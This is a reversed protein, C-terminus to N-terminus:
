REPRRMSGDRLIYQDGLADEGFPIDSTKLTEAYLEYIAQPSLWNHRLSHWQPEHCAGRIHLGGHYAIYGNAQQLLRAYPGPLLALIDHDNIPPGRYM